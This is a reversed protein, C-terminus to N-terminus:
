EVLMENIKEVRRVLWYLCVFNILTGLGLWFQLEINWKNTISLASLFSLVIFTLPSYKILFAEFRNSLHALKKIRDLYSVGHKEM